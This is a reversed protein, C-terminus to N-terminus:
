KKSRKFYKRYVLGLIGGIFLSLVLVSGLDINKINILIIIGILVIISTIWYSKSLEVDQMWISKSKTKIGLKRMRNSAYITIISGVILFLMMFGFLIWNLTENTNNLTLYAAFMFAIGIYGIVIGIKQLRDYDVM